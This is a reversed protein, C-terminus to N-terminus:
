LDVLDLHKIRPGLVQPSLPGPKEGPELRGKRWDWEERTVVVTADPFADAMGAQDPELSSLVVWRVDQARIGLMALKTVLDQHRKQRYLFPKEELFQLVHEPRRAPDPSLGTGFLIVGASSHHIIFVPVDLRLNAHFSKLSSVTEGHTRVQGTDVAAMRVSQAQRGSIMSLAFMDPIKRIDTPAPPPTVLYPDKGQPLEPLCGALVAALAALAALRRM